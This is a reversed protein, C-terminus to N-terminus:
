GSSGRQWARRRESCRITVLVRNRTTGAEPGHVLAWAELFQVLRIHYSFASDSHALSTSGPWGAPQSTPDDRSAPTRPKKFTIGQRAFFRWITSRVFSVGHEHRLMDALETFNVDLSAEIAARIVDGFAEIRHPRTDGSKPKRGCRWSHAVRTATRGVM